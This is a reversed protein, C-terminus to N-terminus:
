SSTPFEFSCTGFGEVGASVRSGPEVAVPPALAGAMIVDGAHLRRGHQLLHRAIWVATSLPYSVFIPEGSRAVCTGDIDLSASLRDFSISTLSRPAGGLVFGAAGVNDAVADVPTMRWDIYRADVIEVAPLAFGVARALDSYSPRDSTLDQTVVLALEVEVKPGCFTSIDIEDGDCWAMDDLLAGYLPADLGALRQSLRSAFGVKHGVLPSHREWVAVNAAQVAYASALMPAPLDAAVPEIAHGQERADRLRAAVADLDCTNPRM